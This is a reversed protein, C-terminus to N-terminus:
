KKEKGAKGKKRVYGYEEIRIATEPCVLYCFGCGSCRSDEKVRAYLLGKKTTSKSLELNNVPCYKVCLACGKCREKDIIIKFM